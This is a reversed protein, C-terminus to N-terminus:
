RTDLEDGVALAPAEEVGSVLDAWPDSGDEDGLAHDGAGRGFTVDYAERRGKAHGLASM